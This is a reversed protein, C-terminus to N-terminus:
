NAELLSTSLDEWSPNSAEILNLKWQRRWRKIQKERAIAQQINTHHEFWVLSKVGYRHTFGKIYGTKHEWIRRALDNTLGTYLTGIRKSALIYVFYNHDQM